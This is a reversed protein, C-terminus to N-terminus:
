NPLPEPLAVGLKRAWAELKSWTAPAFAIGQTRAAAIGRMSADGPVRVPQNPDIPRTARCREALYAMEDEFVARGAFCEPDIVQLYTNGGWRTPPNKRGQGSLGQSLAEVMLTIAYGKHGHDLGGTLLLSGRPSTNELVAPDTTPRGQADLLWPKEFHEGAAFKTRTMSTSTITASTDILVPSAGAPYGLAWPNPTFVAETGGFPAARSSAPDSNAILAVLGQDASIKVLAALCGIHHNRRIAVASLGTRRAREGALALAQEMLWQGPLYNGDWVAVHGNDRLVTYSGSLAMRGAEIESLYASAQALGHTRRGMADTIVLLRAVADAKDAEM